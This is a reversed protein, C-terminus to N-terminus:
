RLWGGSKVHFLKDEIKGNNANPLWSNELRLDIIPLFVDLSYIFPHFKPYNPYNICEQLAKSPTCDKETPMILGNQYGWEFAFSGIVVVGLAFAFARGPRYGYAITFGLICKWVKNWWNLKGYQLEDNEKGILVKVADDENGASRLVKALQKYPQSPLPKEPQLRLWNLYEQDTQPSNEGLAEYVLGNLELNGPAPLSDQAHELIQIKAFQLDLVM